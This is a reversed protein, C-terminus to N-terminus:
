AVTKPLVRCCNLGILVDVTGHPRNPNITFNPFLKIAGSIDVRKINSTIENIGYAKVTWLAGHKDHIPLSYEKSRETVVTNGVKTVTVKCHKGKLNLKRAATHTIVTLNSCPDLIATLKNHYSRISCIMLITNQPDSSIQHFTVGSVQAAHLLPYHLKDCPNGSVLATCKTTSPCDRALHGGKLCKYCAGHKKLQDVKEQDSLALFNNCESIEHTSSNHLWCKAAYKTGRRPPNLTASSMTKTLEEVAQKLQLLSNFNESSNSVNSSTLNVTGSTHTDTSSVDNMYEIAHKESLLFQLLLQFKSNGPSSDQSMQKQKFLSWERRQTHPLLKEIMSITTSTDMERELKVKRLDLWCREVTNILTLLMKPDNESVPSISKLDNLVTDVLRETDGYKLKLRMWMEEYDDDVGAVVDLAPGSLCSRLAYSDSGYTPEMYNEYDKIFTPFKRMDGGFKPADLKKVKLSTSPVSQRALATDKAQVVRTFLQSQLKCANELHANALVVEADDEALVALYNDHADEMREYMTNVKALLPELVEYPADNDLRDTLVNCAQTFKGRATTRTRKLAAKEDETAM